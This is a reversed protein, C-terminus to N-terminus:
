ITTDIGSIRAQGSINKCTLEEYCVMTAEYAAKNAVRSLIKGDLDMWTWDSLRAFKFYKTNLFDAIGDAMYKEKSIPVRGYSPLEFGGNVKMYEINRKYTNQEDVYARVTAPSCAIFNPKSGTRIEVKDIAEELWISDFAQAVGGSSKDILHPNFWKNAARNIGYIVTNATFIEGLGILEKKYNGKLTILADATVTVNEGFSITDTSYDVDAIEKGDVLKTVTTGDDTLIDVFQGVYFYEINGDKVVVDKATTVDANVKAMIGDSKGVLNRRVMDKADNTLDEMQLTVQDAFSAKSNKATRILKDTFSIRGLLDKPKAVGQVYKRPSPDPIDDGESRAGVGGSRGYQMPWKFENGPVTEVTKEIAAIIPGSGEDLQTIIPGIFMTKLANEVTAITSLM